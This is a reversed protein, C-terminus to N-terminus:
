QAPEPVITKMTVAHVVSPNDRLRVYLGDDGPHPVLLAHGAFGEPVQVPQEFGPGRGVAEILYLDSGSLSCTADSSAACTLADLEPVRILTVLPKWDGQVEDAVVRFRLPGFADPGFERAPDLSAVVVGAGARRLQNKALTLTAAFLGDRSAIEVRENAGFGKASNSRLSFTLTGGLPLEDNNAMLIRAEDGSPPLRVSKDILTAGPRAPLVNARLALTRGDNLSVRVSLPDGANMQTARPATERALMVLEDNGKGPTFPGPSFEIGAASLGTVQDLRQGKLVGQADGAHLIFDDLHAAATYTQLPVAQSVEDGYQAMRLTLGGPQAQQLPFKVVVEGPAVLQWQATIRSGGPGEVEVDRLCSVSEARVHVVGDRGVILTDDDTGGTRWSQQVPMEMQFEPGVYDEFGWKGRLVGRTSGTLGASALAATDVLFGGQLADPSAPLEIQSGDARTLHLQLDHAYQTGFVLPAGEVPLVLSSKRACFIDRPDVARMLPMRAAEIPPLAAVLVSKPNQFSPPTNLRLAMRQEQQFALAPVYQYSARKFPDLLRALDIVSSIYPSYYGSNLQPTAAATLLAETAPSATLAEIISASHGDSLILTDQGEMLCSVQLQPIRDLCKENVRIALSRALLPIAEKVKEQSALDLKRLDRLYIELRARDLSAQNLQQAARVFAGPRGQVAGVLTDFGNGSSPALFVLTQEAGDPVKVNLGNRRCKEKWTECQFFWKDPPPNTAGRLFAVILLYRASQSEPFDARIVLSDGAHLNPVQAVPLSAEARSVRVDLTPGELDFPAAAAAAAPGAGATLALAIPLIRLLRNLM